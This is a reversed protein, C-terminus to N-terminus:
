KEGGIEKVINKVEDKGEKNLWHVKKRGQKKSDVYKQLINSGDLRRRVTRYSIPVNDAIEKISMKDMDLLAKLIDIDKPDIGQKRIKGLWDTIISKTVGRWKTNSYSINLKDVIDKSLKETYKEGYEKFKSMIEKLNDEGIVEAIRENLLRPGYSTRIDYTSTGKAYIRYIAPTIAKLCLLYYPDRNVWGDEYLRKKFVVEKRNKIRMEISAVTSKIVREMRKSDISEELIKGTEESMKEYKWKSVKFIEEVEEETLRQKM